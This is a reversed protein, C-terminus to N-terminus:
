DLDRVWCDVRPESGRVEVPRNASQPVMGCTPSNQRDKETRWLTPLRRYVTKTESNIQGGQAM